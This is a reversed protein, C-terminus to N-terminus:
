FQALSAADADNPAKSGSTLFRVVVTAAQAAKGMFIVGQEAVIAQAISDALPDGSSQFTPEVIPVLPLVLRTTSKPGQLYRKRAELLHEESIKDATRFNIDVGLDTVSLK